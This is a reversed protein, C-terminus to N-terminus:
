LPRATGLWKLCLLRRYEKTRTQLINCPSMKHMAFTVTATLLFLSCLFMIDSNLVSLFCVVVATKHGKKRSWGLSGTGSSFKQVKRHLPLNVSASVGIMRSPAVGDPSVLAWRWWGGMKKCAPHGEMGAAWGVTDFCQLCFVFRFILGFRCNVTVIAWLHMCIKHASNTYVVCCLVSRVIKWWIRWVIMMVWISDVPRLSVYRIASDDSSSQDMAVPLM